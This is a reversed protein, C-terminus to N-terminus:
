VVPGRSWLVVPGRSWLVVPGRSWPVVPGWLPPAAVLDITRPWPHFVSQVRIGLLLREGKELAILCAERETNLGHEMRPESIKAAQRFKPRYHSPHRTPGDMPRDPCFQSKVARALPPLHGCSPSKM